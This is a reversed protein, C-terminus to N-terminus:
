ARTRSAIARSPLSKATQSSFLTAAATNLLLPFPSPSTTLSTPQLNPEDLHSSPPTTPAVVCRFKKELERVLRPQIKHYAQLQKFPVYIVVAKRGGQLDMEIAKTIHLSNLDAKLDSGAELDILAQAVTAEFDDCARGGAKKIKLHISM